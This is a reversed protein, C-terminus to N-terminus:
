PTESFGVKGGGKSLKKAYITEVQHTKIFKSMKLIKFKQGFLLLTSGGMYHIIHWVKLFTSTVLNPISPWILKCIHSVSMGVELSAIADLFLNLRLQFNTALM